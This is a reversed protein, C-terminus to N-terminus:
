SYILCSVILCTAIWNTLCTAVWCITVDVGSAILNDVGYAGCDFEGEVIVWCYDFEDTLCFRFLRVRWCYLRFFARCTVTCDNTLSTFCVFVFDLSCMTESRMLSTAQSQLVVNHHQYATMRHSPIIMTRTSQHPTLPIGRIPIPHDSSLDSPGYKFSKPDNSTKIGCSNPQIWEIRLEDTSLWWIGSLWHSECWSNIKRKRKEWDIHTYKIILWSALSIAALVSVKKWFPPM